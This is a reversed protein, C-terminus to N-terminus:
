TNDTFAEVPGSQRDKLGLALPVAGRPSAFNWAFNSADGAQECRMNNAIAASVRGGAKLGVALDIGVTPVLSRNSPPARSGDLECSQLSAAVLRM